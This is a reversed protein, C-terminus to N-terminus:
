AMMFIRTFRGYQNRSHPRSRHASSSDWDVCGVTATTSHRRCQSERLNISVRKMAEQGVLVASQKLNRTLHSTASRVGRGRGKAAFSLPVTRVEGGNKGTHKIERPWCRADPSRLPLFRFGGQKGVSVSRLPRLWIPAMPAWCCALVLM